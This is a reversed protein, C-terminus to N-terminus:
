TSSRILEIEGFSQAQRVSVEGTHVLELMALFSEVVHEPSRDKSLLARFSIRKNLALLARVSKVCDAIPRRPKPTHARDLFSSTERKSFVEYSSLLESLAPHPM